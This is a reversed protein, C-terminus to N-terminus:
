GQLLAMEVSVSEPDTPDLGAGETQLNNVGKALEGALGIPAGLGEDLLHAYTDLTFAASHHGLWRQVQKPNKGAEFLMSACTHRFTHFGIWAVDAEEAAPALVRRRVNEQRLPVGGRASFVLADDTADCRKARLRDAMALDLPIDRKGYKSKPPKFKGRVLARRVKVQPRGGDLDLDGWRLAAVESWRVGTAALFEFFLRWDSHVVDLFVALQSRTLAMPGDDDAETAQRTPLVAGDAPNHRILGERRATALCARVPALVRRVTADSLVVPEIKAKAPVSSLPVGRRKAEAERREAERREGQVEANCLWGIWTAIHRPTISALPRDGLEPFAYRRLDRRYDDRTSDTFGRRGNGQYREVWEAAYDRFKERSAEFFEGSDRDAERRAKIARAAKYTPASEWKQRGNIRYGVVYRSGRKYIGPTKTREMKAAM